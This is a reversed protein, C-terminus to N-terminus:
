SIRMSDQYFDQIIDTEQALGVTHTTQTVPDYIDHDFLSGLGVVNVAPINRATIYYNKILESTDSLTNYVVLVNEPGPPDAYTPPQQANASMIYLALVSFLQFFLKM